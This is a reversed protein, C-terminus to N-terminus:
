FAVAASAYFLVLWALLVVDLWRVRTFLLVITPGWFALLSLLVAPSTFDLPRRVYITTLLIVVAVTVNCSLLLDLLLPPLPTVIVLVSTVILIPFILARSRIFFTRLGDSGEPPM